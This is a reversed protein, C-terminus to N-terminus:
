PTSISFRNFKPPSTCFSCVMYSVNAKLMMSSWDLSSMSAHNVFFFFFFFFDFSSKRHHNTFFRNWRNELFRIIKLEHTWCSPRYRQFRWVRSSRVIDKLSSDEVHLERLTWFDWSAEISPFYKGNCGIEEM